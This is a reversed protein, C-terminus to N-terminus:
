GRRGWLLAALPFITFLSVLVYICLAIVVAGLVAHIRAQRVAAAGRVIPTKVLVPYGAPPFVSQRFIRASMVWFWAAVAVSCAVVIALIGALVLAFREERAATTTASAVWSKIAPFAWREWVLGMAVALALLGAVVLPLAKRPRVFEVSM